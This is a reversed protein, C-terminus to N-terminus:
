FRGHVPWSTPNDESLREEWCHDCQYRFLKKDSQSRFSLEGFLISIEQESVDKKYYKVTSMVPLQKQVAIRLESKIHKLQTLLETVNALKQSEIFATQCKQLKELDNQFDTRKSKLAKLNATGKEELSTILSQVKQDVWQKMQNGDETIASIAENIDSQYKVTGQEINDLNTKVFDIRLDMFKKVEVQLKQTSENIESMDHKKHKKVVCIKCIPMDCDVCYFIINEDHEKCFLKNEPSIHSGNIFTHNRSIKSRLHLTKCNECMWQNCLKCLNRGQGSMCIDCSKSASQAM